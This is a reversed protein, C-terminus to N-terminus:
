HQASTVNQFDCSNIGLLFFWDTRIAFILERLICFIALGCFYVGAVIEHWVTPKGPQLTIRFYNTSPSGHDAKLYIIPVVCGFCLLCLLNISALAEIM